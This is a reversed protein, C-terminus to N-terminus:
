RGTDKLKILDGITLGEERLNMTKQQPEEYTVILVIGLAREIKEALALHPKLHGNEVHKVVSERERLHHALQEQTWGKKDRAKRVLEGCNDMVYKQAEQVSVKKPLGEMYVPKEVTIVEGFRSCKRCIHLMSGEVIADVMEGEHGCMECTGM